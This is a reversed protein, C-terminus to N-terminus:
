HSAAAGIVKCAEVASCTNGNDLLAEILERYTATLCKEKWKGLMGVRKEDETRDDSDVSSIDADTLNLRKGILKWGVCFKALDLLVTQSCEKSLVNLGVGAQAAVDQVTVKMQQTDSEKNDLHQFCYSDIFLGWQIGSAVKEM